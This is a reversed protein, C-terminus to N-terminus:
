DQMDADQQNRAPWKCVFDNWCIACYNIKDFKYTARWVPVGGECSDGAHCGGCVGLSQPRNFKNSCTTYSWSGLGIPDLVLETWELDGIETPQLPAWWEVGVMHHSWHLVGTSWAKALENPNLTLTLIYWHTPETAAKAAVNYNIYGELAAKVAAEMNPKLPVYNGQSMGGFWKPEITMMTPSNWKKMVAESSFAISAKFTGDSQM